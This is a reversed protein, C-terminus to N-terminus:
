SRKQFRGLLRFLLMLCAGLMDIAVDAPSGTRSALQGQHWEDWSALALCIGFVALYGRRPLEPVLARDWLLALLAYASMHGLKRLLHHLTEFDESGLQLGLSECIQRLLGGTQGTAMWGSSALVIAGTWLLAPLWRKWKSKLQDM